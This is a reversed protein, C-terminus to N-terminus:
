RTREVKIHIFMTSAHAIYYDFKNTFQYGNRKVPASPLLICQCLLTQHSIFLRKYWGVFQKTGCIYYILLQYHGICVLVRLNM